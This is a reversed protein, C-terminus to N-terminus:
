KVTAVGNKVYYRTGNQTVYGTYGWNLVGKQVYYWTGYYKTLGTYNWNLAGKEVYYWTKNYYTLGTYNWNLAGNEVYYWTKNYYTLGTYNWNLAGKEVYYWTKNYYTLGTYNWNLAGKEVYYWTKNYYTLGTYNWNLVGKQVYYWTKNYYTLSTYNWNLVGKQVYYWTGYYNTLGTYNWNLIGKEVYYWTGYYKTLGTYNWNLVGKEVYYWTGYYNTLGTYSWDLVGNKVYYWTGYYNVLGTYNWRTVGNVKYYWVNNGMHVLGTQNKGIVVYDFGWQVCDKVLEEAPTGETVCFTIGKGCLTRYTEPIGDIVVGITEVTPGLEIRKLNDCDEFAFSLNNANRCGITASVLNSCGAFVGMSLETISSPVVINELKSNEFADYELTTVSTPIDFKKIATGAFAQSKIATPKGTIEVTELSECNYFMDSAIDASSEIKVYRLNKCEEFVGKVYEYNYYLQISAPITLRQITQYSDGSLSSITTLAYGDLKGPLVVDTQTGVYDLLIANGDEVTYLYNGTSDLRTFAAFGIEQVSSPIVVDKLNAGYFAGVEINSPQGTFVVSKIARCRMFLGFPIDASSEIRVSTLATCDAFAGIEYSTITEPIVLSTIVSNDGMDIVETVPYGGLTTPITVDTQDGDYGVISAKGDVVEYWFGVENNIKDTEKKFPNGDGISTVSDPIIADELQTRYFANDGISTPRGTIELKSLKLCSSFMANSINASSEIRVSTLDECGMFACVGYGIVSAPITLQKLKAGTFAYAGITKISSPIVFEELGTDEFSEEDIATVSGTIEFSKLATCGAFGLYPIMMTSECKVHKLSKSNRFIGGGSSEVEAPITIDEIGSAYFAYYEPQSEQSKM